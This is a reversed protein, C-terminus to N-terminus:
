DIVMKGISAQSSVKLKKKLMDCGASLCNINKINKIGHQFSCFTIKLIKNQNFTLSHQTPRYYCYMYSKKKKKQHIFDIFKKKGNKIGNEIKLFIFIM